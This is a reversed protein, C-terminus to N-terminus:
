YLDKRDAEQAASILADCLGTTHLTIQMNKSFNTTHSKKEKIKIKANM